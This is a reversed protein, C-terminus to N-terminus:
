RAEAHPGPPPPPPGIPDEPPEIGEHFDDEIEGSSMEPRIVRNRMAQVTSRQAAEEARARLEMEEKMIRPREPSHQVAKQHAAKDVLAMLKLQTQELQGHLTELQERLLGIMADKGEAKMEAGAARAHSDGAEARVIVLERDKIAIVDKLQAARGEAEMAHRLQHEFESRTYLEFLRM